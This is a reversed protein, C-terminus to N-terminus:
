EGVMPHRMGNDVMLLPEQGFQVPTGDPNFVVVARVPGGESRSVWILAAGIVLGLVFLRYQDATM